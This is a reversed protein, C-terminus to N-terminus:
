LSNSEEPTIHVQWPIFHSILMCCVFYLTRSLPILCIRFESSVEELPNCCNCNHFSNMFVSAPHVSGVVFPLSLMSCKSLFPLIHDQVWIKGLFYVVGWGHHNVISPSWLLISRKWSSCAIQVACWASQDRPGVYSLCSELIVQKQFGILFIDLFVLFFFFPSFSFNVM